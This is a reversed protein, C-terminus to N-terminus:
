LTEGAGPVSFQGIVVYPQGESDTPRYREGTDPNYIGVQVQCEGPPLEAPLQLAFQDRVVEGPEWTPAPFQGNGPVADRQALLRGECLVHTFVTLPEAVPHGARWELAVPLLEGARPADLVGAAVLEVGNNFTAGVPQPTEDMPGVLYEIRQLRGFTEVRAAGPSRYIRYLAQELASQVALAGEEENPDVLVVDFLGSDPAAEGVAARAAAPSLDGGLTVAVVPHVTHEALASAYNGPFVAVTRPAPEGNLRQALADVDEPAIRETRVFFRLASQALTQGWPTLFVFAFLAATAALTFAIRLTPYWKRTNMERGRDPTIEAKRQREAAQAAEAAITARLTRRFPEDVPPSANAVTAAFGFREEDAHGCQRKETVAGEVADPSLASLRRGKRGLAGTKRDQNEQGNGNM